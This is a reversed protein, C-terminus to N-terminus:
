SIFSRGAAPRGVIGLQSAINVTTCETEKWKPKQISHPTSISRSVSAEVVERVAMTDLVINLKDVELVSIM